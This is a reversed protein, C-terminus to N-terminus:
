HFIVKIIQQYDSQMTLILFYIGSQYQINNLQFSYCDNNMKIIDNYIVRGVLDCLYIKVSKNLISESNTFISINNNNCVVDFINPNSDNITNAVKIWTKGRDFSRYKGNKRIELITHIRKYKHWNRGSDFSIRECGTKKNVEYIQYFHEPQQCFCNLQFLGFILLVVTKM